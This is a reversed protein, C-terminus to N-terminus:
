AEVILKSATKLLIEMDDASINPHVLLFERLEAYGKTNM